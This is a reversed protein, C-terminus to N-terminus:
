RERLDGLTGPFLFPGALFLAAIDAFIDCAAIEFSNVFTVNEMVAWHTLTLIGKRRVM